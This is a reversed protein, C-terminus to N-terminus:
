LFLLFFVCEVASLLSMDHMMTMKILVEDGYMAKLGHLLFDTMYDGTMYVFISEKTFSYIFSHILADM